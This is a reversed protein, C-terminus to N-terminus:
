FFKSISKGIKLVASPEFYHPLQPLKLTGGRTIWPKDHPRYSETGGKAVSNPSTSPTCLQIITLSRLYNEIILFIRSAPAYRKRSHRVHSSWISFSISNSASILVCIVRRSQTVPYELNLDRFKETPVRIYSIDM